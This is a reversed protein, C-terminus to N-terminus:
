IGGFGFSNVSARRPTGEPLDPWAQASKLIELNTYFPEVAPSLKNFGYNPPIIGHQLALSTKILGALGATGETHGFVTKISGVYLPHRGQDAVVEGPAFFSSSIAEAERPDGAQTGTGHAEFYQCRDESNRPDLGARAYTRAILDAQATSSPMTIGKTRGDQNVGSERIICEIHDGDAIAVSLRKLVVAAVGEGRAYGSADQDWMKCRSEPSLMHLKSFEAFQLPWLLLNAGAAVAVDSDGSRLSQVAQHVAVLSSSCATDITMSPGHWDFFYSVRNSIMSRSTGTGTYTPMSNIDRHLQDTYDSCMLGVYVGTQSGAMAQISLGAAELAEYVVELLIRQQPDIAHAEKPKINFFNADFQRIDQRLFYSNRINTSGHHDPDRHYFAEPNFRDEPIQSLLDRPEILLDWLASPNNSSEPLRLGTGVVAIPERYGGAQSDQRAMTSELALILDIREQNNFHFYSQSPLVWDPFPPQQFRV